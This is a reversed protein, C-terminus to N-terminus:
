SKEALQELITNNQELLRRNNTALEELRTHVAEIRAFAQQDTSYDHEALQSAIQDSRKAAILLIAGQLGAVMSLFLNLLIYPYPDFGHKGNTGGLFFISNVIAWLCMVGIFIGVFAWSGMSNRMMDAAREGLTLQEGSPVAPHKDWYTLFGRRPHRIGIPIEPTATEDTLESEEHALRASTAAGGSRLPRESRSGFTWPVDLGVRPNASRSDVTADHSPGHPTALRETAPALTPKVAHEAATPLVDVPLHDVLPDDPHRVVAGVTRVEWLVLADDFEGIGFTLNDAQLDLLWQADHKGIDAPDDRNQDVTVPGLGDEVFAVWPDVDIRDRLGSVLGLFVAEVVLQALAVRRLAPM